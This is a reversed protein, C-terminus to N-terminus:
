LAGVPDCKEIQPRATLLPAIKEMAARLHPAAMHMELAAESAYSEVVCYVGDRGRAKAFQYLLAEPENARVERMLEAVVAEFDAEAGARVSLEGVLYVMHEEERRM